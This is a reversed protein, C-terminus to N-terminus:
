LMGLSKISKCNCTSKKEQKASMTKKQKSCFRISIEVHAYLMNPAHPHITYPKLSYVTSHFASLSPLQTQYIERARLLVNTTVHLAPTPKPRQPWEDSRSFASIHAGTLILCEYSVPFLSLSFLLTSPQCEDFYKIWLCVYYYM